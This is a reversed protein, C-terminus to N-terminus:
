RLIEFFSFEKDFHLVNEPNRFDIVLFDELFPRCYLVELSIIVILIIM